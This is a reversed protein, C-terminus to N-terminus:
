FVKIVSSQIEKEICIHKSVKVSRYKLAFFFIHPSSFPAVPKKRIGIAPFIHQAQIICPASNKSIYINLIHQTTPFFLPKWLNARSGKGESFTMTVTVFTPRLGENCLDDYCCEAFLYAPVRKNQCIYPAGPTLSESIDICSHIFCKFLLLPKKCHITLSVLVEIEYWDLIINFTNAFSFDVIAIDIIETRLLNSFM